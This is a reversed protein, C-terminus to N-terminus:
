GQRGANMARLSETVATLSAIADALAQTVTTSPAALDADIEDFDDDEDPDLFGECTYGEGDRWGDEPTGFVNTLGAEVESCWGQDRCYLIAVDAVHARVAALDTATPEPKPSGFVERLVADVNGAYYGKRQGWERTEREIRDRVLDLQAKTVPATLTSM